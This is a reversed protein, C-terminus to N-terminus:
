KKPKKAKTKSDNNKYTIFFPILLIGIILLITNTAALFLFNLEPSVYLEFINIGAAAAILIAFFLVTKKKGVSFSKGCHYCKITKHKVTNKVEGYRYITGCHPCIPLKFM